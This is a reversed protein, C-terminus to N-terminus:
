VLGHAVTMPASRRQLRDRRRSTGPQDFPLIPDPTLNLSARRVVSAMSKVSIPSKTTLSLRYCTELEPTAGQSQGCESPTLHSFPTAYREVSSGSVDKAHVADPYQIQTVPTDPSRIRVMNATGEVFSASGSTKSLRGDSGGDHQQLASSMQETLSPRGHQTPANDSSLHRQSKVGKMEDIERELARLEKYRNATPLLELEPYELDGGTQISSRRGGQMSKDRSPTASRGPIFRGLRAKFSQAFKDSFSRGIGQQPPLGGHIKDTAWSIDGAASIGEIAFDKSRVMDAEGAAANREDRSHSPFRAWAKPPIKSVQTTQSKTSADHRLRERAEEEQNDLQHAWERLIMNSRMLTEQFTAENGQSSRRECTPSHVGPPSAGLSENASPQPTTPVQKFDSFARPPTPAVPINSSTSGRPSRSETEARLARKWMQATEDGERSSSFGRLRRTEDSKRSSRFSTGSSRAQSPGYIAVPVKLHGHLQPAPKDSPERMSAIHDSGSGDLGEIAVPKVRKPVNLHLKGLLSNRNSATPDGDHDFIEKFKSEVPVLPEMRLHSNRFREEVARLEAERRHFSSTESSIEM